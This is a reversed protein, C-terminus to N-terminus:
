PGSSGGNLAKWRSQMEAPTLAVAGMRPELRHAALLETLQSLETLSSRVPALDWIRIIGDDAKTILEQGGANWDASDIGDAHLLPPSVGEGTEADWVRLFQGARTAVLRGDPSFVFGSPLVVHELLPAIRQGTASDRIAVSNAGQLTLFRQGDPSFAAPYSTISYVTWEPEVPQRTRVNWLQAGGPVAVQDTGRSTHRRVTLIRTGDANLAVSTVPSLLELPAGEPAGSAADWVRATQDESGAVLRRGDASFSAHLVPGKHVMPPTAPTGDGANWVRVTADAGASLFKRGDASFELCTVIGPHNLSFLEKGTTVERCYITGNGVATLFRSGDRNFCAATTPVAEEWGSSVRGSDADWVRVTGARNFEVFHRGDPSTRIHAGGPLPHPLSLRVGAGGRLEWLRTNGSETTLLSQGDPGFRAEGVVGAHQLAPILPRGTAPDWIRVTRDYSATVLQKGDPSFEFQIVHSGHKMPEGIREGTETRIVRAESGITMAVWRGDPSFQADYASNEGQLTAMTREGRTLDWIDCDTESRSMTFMMNGDPSFVSRRVPGIIGPATWVVRGSTVEVVDMLPMEGCISATRSDPNFRVRSVKGREALLPGAPEGSPVALFRVGDEVIAILWRGDPSYDFTDSYTRGPISKVLTALLPGAPQGTEADWHRLKGQNDATVLFRGDRTFWAYAAPPDTIIPSILPAGTGIDFVQVDGQGDGCVARPAGPHFRATLLQGGTTWLQKLRPSTSLVSALRRRHVDERAPDGQELRLAELFQLLATFAHGDGVLKNGAAVHMRVLDRRRSEAIAAAERRAEQARSENWRSQDLNRNALSEATTARIAQRVSVTVGSVLLGVIAAIAFSLARHRRIWKTARELPPTPRALIPEGSQWRALDAALAEASGYRRGPDKRLCKLCITELDRDLGTRLLFPRRPEKDIVQRVTEMTTGGAFPPQGALLEYLIAGLGYVDVATTMEKSEGRAQEPSMYSPTGLMAMTRTLTSSNEVLKALGFDTLYPEGQADLLVNGPKIDRHLIGRQHAYHVARALKALLEAAERQPMPFELSALRQALSVGEILKMSFFPQGECEGAEYVPVISPHDLSAAADTEIRFREVFDPAAFQGSALVKLAVTRNIAQQRARYVIGMGGRAIEEMLTYAGFERPLAGPVPMLPSSM